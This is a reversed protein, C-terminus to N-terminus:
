AFGLGLQLWPKVKPKQRKPPAAQWPEGEQKRTALDCRWARYENFTNWSLHIRSLFSLSIGWSFRDAGGWWCLDGCRFRVLQSPRWGRWGAGHVMAYIRLRRRRPNFGARTFM